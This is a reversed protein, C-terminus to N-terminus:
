PFLYYHPEGLRTVEAFCRWLKDLDSNNLTSRAKIAKRPRRRAWM